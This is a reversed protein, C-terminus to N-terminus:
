SYEKEYILQKEKDIYPRMYKSVANDTLLDVKQKLLDQLDLQMKIFQLGGSLKNYDLEVLIDIDSEKTAAGKIQSGFLFAKQIPKDIFYQTIIKIKDESIKM